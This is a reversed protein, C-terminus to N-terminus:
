VRGSFLFWALAVGPLLLLILGLRRREALLAAALLLLSLLLSLLLFELLGRWPAEWLFVGQGARLWYLGAFSVPVAVEMLLTRWGIPAGCRRCAGRLLLFSFVPINEYWPIGVGCTFCISRLPRLLTVPRPAGGKQAAGEQGSGEKSGGEQVAGDKVGVDQVAGDGGKTESSRRPTRDVVQNLFSGWVWALLTIAAGLWQDERVPWM